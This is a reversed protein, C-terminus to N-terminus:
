APDPIPEGGIIRRRGFLLEGGANRRILLRERDLGRAVRAQHGDSEAGLVRREGCPHGVSMGLRVDRITEGHPRARAAIREFEQDLLRGLQALAHVGRLRLQRGVTRLMSHHREVVRLVISGVRDQLAEGLEVLAQGLGLGHAHRALRVVQQALAAGLKRGRELTGQEGGELLIERPELGLVRREEPTVRRLVRVDRFRLRCHLLRALLELELNPVDRIPDLRGIEGGELVLVHQALLDPELRLLRQLQLVHRDFVPHELVLEEGALLEVVGNLLADLLGVDGGLQAGRVDEQHLRGHRRHLGAPRALSEKESRAEHERQDAADPDRQDRLLEVAPDAAGVLEM